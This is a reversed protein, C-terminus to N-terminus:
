QVVEQTLKESKEFNSQALSGIHAETVKQFISLFCISIFIFLVDDMLSSIQRRQESSITDDFVLSVKAANYFFQGLCLFVNLFFIKLSSTLSFLIYPYLMIGTLSMFPLELFDSAFKSSIHFILVLMLAAVDLKAKCIWFFTLAFLPVTYFFVLSANGSGFSLRIFVSFTGLLCILSINMYILTLTQFRRRVAEIHNSFRINRAFISLFFANLSSVIKNM